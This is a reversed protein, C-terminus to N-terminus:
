ISRRRLGGVRAGWRMIRRSALSRRPKPRIAPRLMPTGKKRAGAAARSARVNTADVCFLEWDIKGLEDLRMQLRECIRDLTGDASSLAFRDYVTSWSGYRQPVDRWPAGSRLVWLIGNFTTRHDSWPRGEKGENSPFLDEILAWEEDTLDYRAM